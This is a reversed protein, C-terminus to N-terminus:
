GRSRVLYVLFVCLIAVGTWADLYDKDHFNMATVIALNSAFVGCIFDM